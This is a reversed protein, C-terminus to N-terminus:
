DEEGHHRVWSTAQFVEIAQECSNDQLANFIAFSASLDLGQQSLIEELHVRKAEFLEPEARAGEAWLWDLINHVAGEAVGVAHSQEEGCKQLQSLLSCCLSTLATEAPKCRYVSGQQADLTAQPVDALAVKRLEVHDGTRDPCTSLYLPQKRPVECAGQVRGNCTFVVIGEDVNVLLGIIDGDGVSKFKQAARREGGWHLAAHGDGSLFEEEETASCESQDQAEEEETGGAHFRRGCYYFWGAKSNHCRGYISEGCGHGARSKDAVVGCWQEDQVKHMILEFFHTGSTLPAKTLVLVYDQGTGRLIMEGGSCALLAKDPNSDLDWTSLPSDDVILTVLLESDSPELTSTSELLDSGLLLKQLAAPIGLREEIERELEPVASPVPSISFLTDGNVGVVKLSPENFSSAM